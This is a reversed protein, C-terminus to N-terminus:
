MLLTKGTESPIWFRCIFVYFYFDVSQLDVDKHFCFSVQLVEHTQEEQEENLTAAPAAKVIYSLDM